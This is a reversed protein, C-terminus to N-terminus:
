RDLRGSWERADFEANWADADALELNREMRALEKRGLTDPRVPILVVARTRVLLENLHEVFLLIADYGNRLILFELGDIVVVCGDSHERVFDEIAKALNAIATPRLVNEAATDALQLVQGNEVGFRERAVDPFVRTICLGPTGRRVLERFVRFSLRPKPEKVLYCAGELLEV